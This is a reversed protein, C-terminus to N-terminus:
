IVSILIPAFITPQVIRCFLAKFIDICVFIQDRRDNAYLKCLLPDSLVSRKSKRDLHIFGDNVNFSLFQVFLFVIKQLREIPHPKIEGRREFFPIDNNGFIRRPPPIQIGVLQKYQHKQATPAAFFVFYVANRFFHPTIFRRVSESFIVPFVGVSRIHRRVPIKLPVVAAYIPLAHVM